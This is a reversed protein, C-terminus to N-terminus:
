RAWLLRRPNPAVGRARALAGLNAVLMFAAPTDRFSAKAPAGGGHAGDTPEALLPETAPKEELARVSAMPDM